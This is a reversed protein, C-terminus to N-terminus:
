YQHVISQTLQEGRSASSTVAVVFRKNGSVGLLGRGHGVVAAEVPDELSAEGPGGVGAVAEVPEVV